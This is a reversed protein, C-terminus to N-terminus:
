EKAVRACTGSKVYNRQSIWTEIAARRSEVDARLIKITEHPNYEYAFRALIESNRDSAQIASPDRWRAITDYSVGIRIALIAAPSQPRGRGRGESRPNDGKEREKEISELCIVCLKHRGFKSLAEGLSLSNDRLPMHVLNPNSM